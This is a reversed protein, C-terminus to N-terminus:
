LERDFFRDLEARLQDTGLAAAGPVAIFVMDTGPPMKDRHLRFYEKLGRKIRNRVCAKGAKKGIALGLRTMRLPNRLMRIHFHPTRYHVGQKMVRQYDSSRRIRDEKTLRFRGKESQCASADKQEEGRSSWDVM